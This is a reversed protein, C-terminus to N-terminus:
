SAKELKVKYEETKPPEVPQVTLKDDKFIPAKKYDPFQEVFWDYVYKYPSAVSKSLRKVTKFVELLKDANSYASIYKEMNAYTLRKNSRAKIIERGAKVVTKMMPFDALINKLRTYEPTGYEKAAAAFKYNMVITDTTFDIKCGAIKKETDM